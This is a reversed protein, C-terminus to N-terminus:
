SPLRLGPLGGSGFSWALAAATIAATIGVIVLKDPPGDLSGVVPRLREILVPLSALVCGLAAVTGAISGLTAARLRQRLGAVLDSYEQEAAARTGAREVQTRARVRAALKWEFEAALRPVRMAHALRADMAAYADRWRRCRACGALHLSVVRAKEPALTGDVLESVDFEYDECASMTNWDKM